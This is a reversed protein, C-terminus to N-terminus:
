EDVDGGFVIGWGAVDYRVRARVEFGFYGGVCVGIEVCVGGWGCGGWEIGCVGGGKEDM